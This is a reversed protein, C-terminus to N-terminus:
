AVKQSSPAAFRRSKRRRLACFRIIADALDNETSIELTDVGALALGERLQTEKEASIEAFRRRFKPNCDILQTEGTEADRLTIMGMDPLQLELPDTLRVAVVDHRRALQQLPKDWGPASFFDSIVFVTSRRKIVHAAADLLHTLQTEQSGIKARHALLEHALHLVHRRGSGTPLMKSVGTSDGGGYLLAGVRNGHGTLVRALSVALENCVDRKRRAGSGFDVSASLDMVFWAAMERDETFVRVHPTNTRATVNWDIHRVDDHAQYERLDAFDLGAGRFLTKYDGQLVGDLRRITTWELRKLLAEAGGKLAPEALPEEVVALPTLSFTKRLWNKM